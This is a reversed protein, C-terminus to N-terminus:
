FMESSSPIRDILISLSVKVRTIVILGCSGGHKMNFILMGTKIAAYNICCVQSLRQCDGIRHALRLEYANRMNEDLDISGNLANDPRTPKSM